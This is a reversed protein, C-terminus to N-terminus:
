KSIKIEGSALKEHLKPEEELLQALRKPDALDAETITVQGDGEKGRNGMSGAAGVGPTKPHAKVYDEIVSAIEEKSTVHPAIWKTDPVYDPHKEALYTHLELQLSAKGLEAQAAELEGKSKEYLEKFQNNEALAKNEAETQAAKLADHEAKLSKYEADRKDAISQFHKAQAEWDTDSAAQSAPTGGQEMGTEQGKDTQEEAM